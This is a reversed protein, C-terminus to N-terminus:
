HTIKLKNCTNFDFLTKFELAIQQNEINKDEFSIEVFVFKDNFYLITYNEVTNKFSITNLTCFVNENNQTDNFSGNAYNIVLLLIIVLMSYGIIFGRWRNDSIKHTINKSKKNKKIAILTFFASLFAIMFSLGLIGLLAELVGTDTKVFICVCLLIFYIFVTHAIFIAGYQLPIKILTFSIKELFVYTFKMYTPRFLFLIWVVLLISLLFFLSFLGDTLAQTISYLRIFSPSIYALQILQIAGGIVTPILIIVSLYEKLKKFINQTEKM